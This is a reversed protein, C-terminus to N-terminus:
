GTSILQMYHTIHKTPYESPFNALFAGMYPKFAEADERSKLLEALFSALINTFRKITSLEYWAKRLNIFSYVIKQEKFFTTLPNTYYKIFDQVIKQNKMYGAPSILVALKIRKVYEPRTPGFTLFISGGLSNGVYFMNDIGTVNTIYDMAAPIDYYGIEHFSFDFYETQNKIWDLHTHNRSFHNGRHNAAWVDFGNDALLYGLGKKPGKGFDQVSTLSLGHVLIVPPRKKTLDRDKFGHPVRHYELIFGDETTFHHIECPYGHNRIM